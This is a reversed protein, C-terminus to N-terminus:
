DRVYWRPRLQPAARAFKAPRGQPTAPRGAGSSLQTLPPINDMQPSRSIPTCKKVLTEIELTETGLVIHM